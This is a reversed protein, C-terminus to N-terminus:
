EFRELNSAFNITLRVVLMVVTLEECTIKLAHMPVGESSDSSTFLGLYVGLFVPVHM